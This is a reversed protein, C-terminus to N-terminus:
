YACIPSLGGLILFLVNPLRGKVGLMLRHIMQLAHVELVARLHFVLLSKWRLPSPKSEDIWGPTLSFSTGLWSCRPYLVEVSSCSVHPFSSRRLAGLLFSSTRNLCCGQCSALSCCNWTEDKLAPISKEVCCPLLAIELYSIQWMRSTMIPLCRIM